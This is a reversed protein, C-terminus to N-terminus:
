NAEIASIAFSVVNDAEPRRSFPIGLKAYLPGCGSTYIFNGEITDLDGGVGFVGDPGCSILQYKNKKVWERPPYVSGPPTVDPKSVGFVYPNPSPSSAVVPGLNVAGVIPGTGDDYYELINVDDMNYQGTVAAFYAVTGYRGVDLYEFFGNNNLDVLRSNNFDYYPQKRASAMSPAVFPITPSNSWGSCHNVDTIQPIGGLWFVLSERGDLAVPPSLVGDGNFDIFQGTGPTPWIMRPFSVKMTHLTDLGRSYLSGLNAKSYDGNEVLVTYSPPYFGHDRRFGEAAIEIQNFESQIAARYAKRIASQVVVVLLSMLMALIVVVVLLEVITFGKRNKM